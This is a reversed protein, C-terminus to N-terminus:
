GHVWWDSQAQLEAPILSVSVHVLTLKKGGHQSINLVDLLHDESTLEFLSSPKETGGRCCKGKVCIWAM